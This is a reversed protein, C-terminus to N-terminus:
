RCAAAPFRGGSPHRAAARAPSAAHAPTMSGASTLRTSRYRARGCTRTTRTARLGTRKRCQRPPQQSASTPAPNRGTCGPTQCAPKWSPVPAGCATCTWCGGSIGAWSLDPRVTLVPLPIRLGGTTQAWPTGEPWDRGPPDALKGPEPLGLVAFAVADALDDHVSETRAEIRLGGLPTPKAVIGALQKRLEAHDPMVISRDSLLHQLRSYAAEKLPQSTKVPVVRVSPLMSQLAETPAIGVGRSESMITLDWMGALAAIEKEQDGYSRRATECYAVAIVSRGNVGGDALLGAIAVAQRDVDRGWDAGLVGPCGKGDRTMPFACVAAAIDEAPFFQDGGGLWEGMYEARFRSAPLLRRAQEVVAPLVWPCDALRWQYTVTDPDDGSLGAMVWEYFLGRAMWATGMVMIRADPRAMTTPIAAAGLVDNDILSAEDLVLLDVRKGRVAGPTSAVSRIRSGNALSVRFKFEDYVSDALLPHSCIARVDELLELASQEASSVILIQQRAKRFAWWAALVAAGRSKGVQRSGLIVTMRTLLRLSEAQFPALPWGILEAFFALDRRARDVEARTISGGAGVHEKDRV